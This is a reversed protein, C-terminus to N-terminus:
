RRRAMSGSVRFPFTSALYLTEVANLGANLFAMNWATMMGIISQAKPVQISDLNLLGHAFRETRDQYMEKETEISQNIRRRKAIDFSLNRDGELTGFGTQEALYNIKAYTTDDITENRIQTLYEDVVPIFNIGGNIVRTGVSKAAVLADEVRSM